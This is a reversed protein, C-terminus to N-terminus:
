PFLIRFFQAPNNTTLVTYPPTAAQNTVWPGVVNTAELLKGGNLWSLQMQGPTTVTATIKQTPLASVGPAALYAQQAESIATNYIRVDYLLGGTFNAAGDIANTVGPPNFRGGLVLRSNPSLTYSADGTTVNQVVGDVYLTRTTTASDFTGVYYHWAGDAGSGGAAGLPDATVTGRMTFVANVGSGRRLQWGEAEGNKSVFPNWVGPQGKAWATVTFSTAIGDDFTNVYGPDTLWSNSIGMSTGGYLNLSSGSKGPPVNNTFRYNTATAGVGYANHTGPLHGSHDALSATGDFWQGVLNGAPPAVPTLVTVNADSSVAGGLSNTVALAYVGQWNTSVNLITLVNSTSGIILSGNSWGDV